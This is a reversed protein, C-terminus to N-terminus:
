FCTLQSKTQKRMVITRLDKIVREQQAVGEIRASEIKGRTRPPLVYREQLWIAEGAIDVVARGCSAATRRTADASEVGVEEAVMEGASLGRGEAEEVESDERAELSTGGDELSTSM